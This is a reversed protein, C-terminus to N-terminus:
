SLAISPLAVHYLFATCQRGVVLIGRWAFRDLTTCGLCSLCSFFNDIGILMLDLITSRSMVLMAM